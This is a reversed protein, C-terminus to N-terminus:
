GHHEAIGDGLQNARADQSAAVAEIWDTSFSDGAVKINTLHLTGGSDASTTFAIARLGPAEIKFESPTWLTPYGDLMKQTIEVGAYSVFSRLPAPIVDRLRRRLDSLVESVRRERREREVREREERESRRRNREAVAAAIYDELEAM